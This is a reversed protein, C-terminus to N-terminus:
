SCNVINRSICINKIDKHAKIYYWYILTVGIFTIAKKTHSLSIIFLVSHKFYPFINNKQPFSM